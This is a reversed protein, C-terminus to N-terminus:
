HQLAKQLEAKTMRSRGRIDRRRAEAYLQEKTRGQPGAHSRLSGRGGSSIDRTSTKSSSRSEGSRARQKNLTHAAIEKAVKKSKGRQELGQEIYLYQRERKESWQNAPMPMEKRQANDSISPGAEKSTNDFLDMAVSLCKGLDIPAEIAPKWVDGMQAFRLPATKITFKAPDLNANVEEWELPTSVTAGAVPRLCYPAAMTKGRANQLYDLYIKDKRSSPSRIVSTSKPNRAQVLQVVLHALQRSQEFTYRAGLPICIHMGTKGSTKPYGTAGIDDLIQKTEIAVKVVTKFPCTKADLDILCYDPMDIASTRSHWPNIEICGLNAMYILTEEDNCVLWHIERSPSKSYDLYTTVWDPHIRHDKQFFNKGYIGDPHRNLSEPRLRLHPVMIDAVKEYYSLVDRKTYRDDPFYVKDLNSLPLRASHRRVLGTKKAANRGHAIRAASM